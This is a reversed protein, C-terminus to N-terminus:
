YLNLIFGGGRVAWTSWNNDLQICIYLNNKWIGQDYTGGITPGASFRIYFM